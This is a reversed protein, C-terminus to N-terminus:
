SSVLEEEDGWIMVRSGELISIVFPDRRRKRFLFEEETMVTYNLERGRRVEEAKVLQSLEPLVISGVVLLDLPDLDVNFLNPAIGYHIPYAQITHSSGLIKQPCIVRDLIFHGSPNRLEKKYISGKPIELVFMLEDSNLGTSKSFVVNENENFNIDTIFNKFHSRPHTCNSIFFTISIIMLILNKM